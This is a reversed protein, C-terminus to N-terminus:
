SYRLRFPHNSKGLFVDVGGRLGKGRDPRIDSKEFDCFEQKDNTFLTMFLHIIVWNIRTQMLDQIGKKKFEVYVIKLGPM